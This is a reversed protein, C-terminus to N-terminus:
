DWRWVFNSRYDTGICHFQPSHLNNFPATGKVWGKDWINYNLIPFNLSDNLFTHVHSFNNESWRIKDWIGRQLLVCPLLSIPSPQNDITPVLGEIRRCGTRLNGKGHNAYPLMSAEADNATSYRFLRTYLSRAIWTTKHRACGLNYAGVPTDFRLHNLLLEGQRMRVMGGWREEESWSPKLWRTLPCRILFKQCRDNNQARIWKRLLFSAWLFVRDFSVVWEKNVISTKTSLCTSGLSSGNLPVASLYEQHHDSQSDIRNPWKQRRNRM